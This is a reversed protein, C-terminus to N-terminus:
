STRAPRIPAVTATSTIGRGSSCTKATTFGLLRHWLVTCSAEDIAYFVGTTAGIYVVGDTVSPSAWFGKNPQGPKNPDSATFMWESHITGATTSTFTTAAANYSIHRPGHLYATWDNTDAAAASTAVLLSAVAVVSGVKLSQALRGSTLTSTRPDRM